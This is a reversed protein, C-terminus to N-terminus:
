WCLASRDLAMMCSASAATTETSNVISVVRLQEVQVLGRDAQVDDGLRAMAATPDTAEAVAPCRARRVVACRAIVHPERPVFFAYRGSRPRRILRGATSASSLRAACSQLNTAESGLVGDPFVM